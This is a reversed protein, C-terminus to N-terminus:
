VFLLLVKDSPAVLDPSPSSRDLRESTKQKKKRFLPKKRRKWGRFTNAVEWENYDPQPNLGSARSRRCDMRLMRGLTMESADRM